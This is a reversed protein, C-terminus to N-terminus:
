WEAFLRTKSGVSFASAVPCYQLSVQETDWRWRLVFEGTVDPVQVEDVIAWMNEPQRGGFM